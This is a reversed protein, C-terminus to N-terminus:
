LCGAEPYLGCELWGAAVEAFDYIDIKCDPEGEPGSIDAKATYEEICAYKDPEIIENYMDIVDWASKPYNWIRVDDLLGEYPTDGTNDGAGFILERDTMEISGMSPSGEIELEGNIYMSAIGTTADFTATLLHWQNDNVPTTAPYTTAGGRIDLYPAGAPDLGMVWGIQEWIEPDPNIYQKSAFELWGNGDSKIWASITMGGLEYNNFVDGSGTIETFQGDKFFEQAQNIIGPAFNPDDMAGDWGNGSSDTLDGDMKWFGMLREVELLATDSVAEGETNTVVCFYYTGADAPQVNSLQLTDAEEDSLLTDSEPEAIDDESRYWQYTPPEPSTATISFNGTEGPAVITDEPQETILPIEPLTTFSWVDGVITNPDEPASDNVSEDVRWYYTRDYPVGALPYEASPETPSGASIPTPSVGEFSNPDDTIYLYHATIAPNVEETIQDLGTKWSMSVDVTTDDVPTGVGVAGDEPVPEFAATSVGSLINVNGYFFGTHWQMDPMGGGTGWRPEWTASDNINEGIFYYDPILEEEELWPEDSNTQKASVVYATDAELTIAGEPIVAYRFSGFLLGETGAPVTVETVKSGDSDLWLTIRHEELLGDGDPDVVPNTNHLDIFGLATITPPDSGTVFKNGVEWPDAYRVDNITFDSRYYLQKREAQTLGFLCLLFLVVILVQRKM